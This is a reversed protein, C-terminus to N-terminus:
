SNSNANSVYQSKLTIIAVPRERALTKERRAESNNAQLNKM